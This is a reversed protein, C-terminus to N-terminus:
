ETLKGEEIAELELDLVRIRQLELRARLWILWAVFVAFAIMSTAFAPIMDPHIGGGGRAMVVPHQGSWRQVSFKILFLLPFGVIALASAFRKEVEGAQGARLATFALYITATLLTSTLRPDWVWFAGWAKRGWLPGSILVIVAFLLGIEAGALSLADWRETRKWLFMLSGLAAVIFGIYMANAAPVHFYFIKQVIGMQMEVPAKWILFIAAGFLLAALAALAHFAKDTM